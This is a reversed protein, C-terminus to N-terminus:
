LPFHSILQIRELLRQKFIYVYVYIAKYGHANAILKFRMLFEPVAFM